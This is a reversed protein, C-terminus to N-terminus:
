VLGRSKMSLNLTHYNSKIVAKSRVDRLLLHKSSFRRKVVQILCGYVNDIGSDIEQAVLCLGLETVKTDRKCKLCFHDDINFNINTGALMHEHVHPSFWM